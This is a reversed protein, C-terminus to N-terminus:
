LFIAASLSDLPPFLLLLESEVDDDSCVSSSFFFSLLQICEGYVSSLRVGDDTIGFYTKVQVSPSTTTVVISIVKTPVQDAPM